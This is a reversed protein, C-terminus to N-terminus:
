GCLPWSEMVVCGDVDVRDSIQAVTAIQWPGIQRRQAALAEVSARDADRDMWAWIFPVDAGIINVRDPRKQVFRGVGIALEVYFPIWVLAEQRQAFRHFGVLHGQDGVIRRLGGGVM